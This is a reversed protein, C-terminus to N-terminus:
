TTRETDNDENDKDNDKDKQSKGGMYDMKESLTGLSQSNILISDQFYVKWFCM